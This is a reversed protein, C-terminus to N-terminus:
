TSDSNDGQQADALAEVLEIIERRRSPDFIQMFAKLLRLVELQDEITDM